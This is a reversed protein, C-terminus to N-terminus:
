AAEEDSDSEPKRPTAQIGLAKLVAAKPHDALAFSLQSRAYLLRRPDADTLGDLDVTEDFIRL